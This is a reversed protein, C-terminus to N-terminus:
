SRAGHLHNENCANHSVTRPIYLWDNWRRVAGGSTLRWNAAWTQFDTSRLPFAVQQQRQQQSLLASMM